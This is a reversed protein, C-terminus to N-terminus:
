LRVELKIVNSIQSGSVCYIGLEYQAMDKSTAKVTVTQNDETFLFYDELDSKLYETGDILYHWNVNSVEDGDVHIEASDRNIYLKSSLSSILLEDFKDSDEPDHHGSIIANCIRHINGGYDDPLNPIPTPFAFTVNSDENVDGFYDVHKNFLHQKVSLDLVGLNASDNIRWTQYVQPFLANDSILFNQGVKLYQTYQNFPMLIQWVSDVSSGGISDKDAGNFSKSQASRLVGLCSYYKGNIVWEFMWNCRLASYRDFAVRDDKSVILWKEYSQKSYDYVDLYFGLREQGDNKFHYDRFRREPNYNPMFRVYREVENSGFYNFKNKEFKFEVEELPELCSNYIMGKRYNVDNRFLKTELDNGKIVNKEGVNSHDSLLQMRKTFVSNM